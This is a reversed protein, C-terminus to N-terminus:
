REKNDIQALIEADSPIKELKYIRSLFKKYKLLDQKNKINGKEIEQAIREAVERIHLPLTTM